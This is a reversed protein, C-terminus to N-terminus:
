TLQQEGQRELVYVCASEFSVTDDLYVTSGHEAWVKAENGILENERLRRTTWSKFDLMAKEPACTASVVLHVHNTRVNLAHLVWGRYTAVDRITKDVCARFSSNFYVPEGNMQKRVHRELVPMVEM